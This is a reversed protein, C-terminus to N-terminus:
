VLVEAPKWPVDLTFRAGCGIGESRATLRGGMEKAANACSHLGFGHGTRKTTFGHSFVKTINEPAIGIGNDVVDIRVTDDGTRAISLVLRPDPRGSEILADRANQVLNVLVQLLKQKQVLVTPLPEYQRVIEVSHKELWSSNLRVADDLLEALNAQEVVGSVGAYSQQMSVINKIHDVNKALSELESQLGDREVLLQDGLLRLYEPIHQGRADQAIFEALEDLHEDLLAAVRRVEPISSDRLREATLTCSVNVSNLVNGVNHLVDTAIEAMGARHAADVLKQHLIALEQEARQRETIERSLKLNAQLLQATREQVRTELQDHAAKLERESQAVRDLMANFEDYLTGIEDNAAKRVRVSYDRNKGIAQATQTLAVIPTSVLRQLRTSMLVSASLSAILIVGVIRLYHLVEAHLDSLSSRLHVAGIPQGNHAVEAFAHLGGDDGFFHGRLHGPPALHPEDAGRRYHHILNGQVDYISAHTVHPQSELAALSEQIEGHQRYLLADVSQTAVLDALSLLHKVKAARLMRVDNAVFAVCSMLLAVGAAIGLLLNLKTTLSLARGRM